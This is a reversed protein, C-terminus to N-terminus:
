SISGTGTSTTFGSQAAASGTTSVAIGTDVTVTGSKVFTEIAEAIEDAIEKRAKEMDKNKKDDSIGKDSQRDFAEKIKTALASTELAM